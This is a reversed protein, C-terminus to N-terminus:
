YDEGTLWQEYEAVIAQWAQRADADSDYTQSTVFGQSDEAIIVAPDSSDPVTLYLGLWGYDEVSGVTEDPVEAYLREAIESDFKSM